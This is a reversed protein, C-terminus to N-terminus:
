TSKAVTKYNEWFIQEAQNPSIGQNHQHPRIQSYYRCIYDVIDQKAESLSDYGREPVWESKLSRFFRRVYGRMKFGLILYEEAAM